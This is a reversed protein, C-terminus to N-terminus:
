EHAESDLFQSYAAASLLGALDGPNSLEVQIMWGDGYPDKNVLEPHDALQDNAAKVTGSVPSYLDSAAKVSEVVGFNKEKEVKTGAKPLEVFVIDGLEHQAYDTIGVTAINGSVKVWEHTKSYKLDGPINSASMIKEKEDFHQEILLNM